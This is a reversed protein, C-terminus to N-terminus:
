YRRWYCGEGISIGHSTPGCYHGDTISSARSGTPLPDKGVLFKNMRLRGIEKDIANMRNKVKQRDEKSIPRGLRLELDASEM